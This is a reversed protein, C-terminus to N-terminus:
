EPHIINILLDHFTKEHIEFSFIHSDYIGASGTVLM